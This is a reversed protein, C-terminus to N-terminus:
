LERSLIRWLWLMGVLQLIVAVFLAAPGLPHALLARFWTPQMWVLIPAMVYPTIAIAIATIRAGALQSALQRHQRWRDRLTENLSRLVPVLDGGAQTKAVITQVFLRVGEGDYGEIMRSCARHLPMGLSLRRQVEDFEARVPQESAAAATALAQTLNGGAQLAGSMLDIADILRQEFRRARMRAWERTAGWPLYLAFGFTIIAVLPLAPLARVTLVSVVAALAAVGFLYVEPPGAVGIARLRKEIASPEGSRPDVTTKETDVLSGLYEQERRQRVRDRLLAGGVYFAVALAAILLLVEIAVSM